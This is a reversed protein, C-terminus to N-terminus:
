SLAMGFYGLKCYANKKRVWMYSGLAAHNGGSLTTQCAGLLAATYSCTVLISRNCERTWCSVTAALLHRCWFHAPRTTGPAGPYWSGSVRLCKLSWCLAAFPCSYMGMLFSSTAFLPSSLGPQVYHVIISIIQMNASSSAFELSTWTICNDVAWSIYDLKNKSLLRTKVLRRGAVWM